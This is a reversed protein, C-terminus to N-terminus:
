GIAVKGSTDNSALREALAAVLYDPNAPKPIYDEVGLQMGQAATEPTPYGTLIIAICNPYLQRMARIVQFGDAEGEINLDCLLLDFEQKTIEDLAERVTAAVTVEFGYRRLIAGLTERIPAEDDVVLLRKRTLRILSKLYVGRHLVLGITARPKRFTLESCDLTRYLVYQIEAGDGACFLILRSFAVVNM